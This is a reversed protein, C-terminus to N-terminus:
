DEIKRIAYVDRHSDRTLVVAADGKKLNPGSERRVTLLLPAGGTQVEAQGIGDVLEQSLLVCLQGEARIEDEPNHNLKRFLPVLPACCVKAVVLGFLVAPVAMALGLLLRLGDNFWYNLLMAACWMGLALFSVPLMIPLEGASMFQVLARLWGGSGDAEADADADVDADADIDADIDVDLDVDTDFDLADMDFVGLFVTFWYLLTLTFLITFPLVVPELALQILETM